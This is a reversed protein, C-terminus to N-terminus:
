RIVEWDEALMDTQSALWPVFTNDATRIGIWAPYRPADVRGDDFAVCSGLGWQDAPILALWMGNGNWGARAVRERAKLKQIAWGFDNAM